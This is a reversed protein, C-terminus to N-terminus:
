YLKVLTFYSHGCNWQRGTDLTTSPVGKKTSNRRSSKSVSKIINNIVSIKRAGILNINPVM